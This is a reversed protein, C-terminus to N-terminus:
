EKKLLSVNIFTYPVNNLKCLALVARTPQSGFDGYIRIAM